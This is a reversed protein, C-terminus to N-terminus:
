GINLIMGIHYLPNVILLMLSSNFVPVAIKVRFVGSVTWSEMWDVSIRSLRM